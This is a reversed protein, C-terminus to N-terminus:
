VNLVEAALPVAALLRVTYPHSPVTLVTEAPGAECVQAQEMVIVDDAISRLVGLDHTVMVLAVGAQDKLETLLELVTAQVSVDLASTVEDCLLVKPQAV